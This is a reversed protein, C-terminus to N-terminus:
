KYTRRRRHFHARRHLTILHDLKSFYEGIQQQELTTKPMMLEMDAMQKGSVEAFTSGAGVTEGYRKLEESRTFIFYSDLKEKNPVISQFGQNTCGEKLLIATKGIGARSTFLVTGIPLIKASSKNLGKETIKRQSSELYIQEGIEAPAYWDIDGDWYSGMSTSPTGGGVIEALEGLKRQEWTLSTKKEQLYKRQHLTILNDLQCFYSAIKNQEDKIPFPLVLNKIEENHIHVVSKGQAKKALERQPNGSSISIALFSSNIDKNPMVINLDGGLLIGSKDVTAARAIDEATEGSAPVVVEGGKSYVSGVKAEVFTDVDSIRTEYNTYLRGYLIIPTGYEVLDGKSYGSGKSFEAVEGLKRQEWDDTYGDFRIEPVKSGNQPFMKTLMYKKLENMQDCKRQHLTILHDINDFYGGIKSQEEKSFPVVFQSNSILNWDARPMKSGSSQNAINDFQQTQILRYLFNKEMNIPKLVWWDGVAIGKFDPNLWNHLYPRLKGYLVQSGDFTIGSKVAEKLRIDKNLRGEEAVVDEYEVSPVDSASTSVFSERAAVDSFKRQEWADDFGKFRIKPKNAM